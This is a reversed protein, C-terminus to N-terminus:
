IISYIHCINDSIPYYLEYDYHYNSNCNTNYSNLYVAISQEKSFTDFYNDVHSRREKNRVGGEGKREVLYVFFPFPLLRHYCDWNTKPLLLLLLLRLRLLALLILLLLLPLLSDRASEFRFCNAIERFPFPFPSSPSLSPSLSLSPYPYVMMQPHLYLWLSSCYFPSSGRHLGSPPLWAFAIQKCCLPPLNTILLKIEIEIVCILEIRYYQVSNDIM